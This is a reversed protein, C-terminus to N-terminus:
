KLARVAAIVEDPDARQKYDWKAWAYRVIGNNDIVFTGPAPLTWQKNGNIKALDIGFLKYKNKTADDVEFFVNYAKAAAMTSDSYVSFTLDHKAITDTAHDPDEATIAVFTGGAEQLEPMKDHWSSLARNCFPCWGGRYFTIVIPGKTYLSALSVKNGQQDFVVADPAHDGVHLGPSNDDVAAKPTNNSSATQSVTPNSQDAPSTTYQQACGWTMVLTLGALIGRAMRQLAILRTRADNWQDATNMMVRTEKKLFCHPLLCAGM